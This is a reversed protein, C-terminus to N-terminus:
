TKAEEESRPRLELDLSRCLRELEALTLSQEGALFRELMRYPIDADGAVHYLTKGSTRIAQKLAKGVAPGAKPKQTTGMIDTYKGTLACTLRCPPM